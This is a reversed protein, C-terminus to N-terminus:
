TGAGRAKYQHPTTIEVRVSKSDSEHLELSVKLHKRMTSVFCMVDTRPCPKEGGTLLEILEEIERSVPLAFIFDVRRTHRLSSPPLTVFSRAFRRQCQLCSAHELRSACTQPGDCGPAGAASAEGGVYKYIMQFTPDRAAWKDLVDQRKEPKASKLGAGRCHVAGAPGTLRDDPWSPACLLLLRPRARLQHNPAAAGFDCESKLLPRMSKNRPTFGYDGSVLRATDEMKSLLRWFPRVLM